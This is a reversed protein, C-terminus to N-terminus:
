EGHTWIGFIDDVFRYYQLPKREVRGLLMSEWKGMYTSAYHMGLKSGIATGETQTYNQDGFKFNNNELVVDIMELIKVTPVMPKLRKDSAEKCAQRAEERSVNPYLGKIDMTFLLASPPLPQNVQTLRNLFHTTGRIYSPLNEVGKRLENEAVKAIGETPHNVSSVITSMPRCPKHVKPNGKLKGASVSKIAMCQELERTIICENRLNRLLKNVRKCVGQTIDKDMCFYTSSDELERKLSEEYYKADLVVVGSGKDAPRIVTSDDLLM